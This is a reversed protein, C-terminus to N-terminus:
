NATSYIRQHTNQERRCSDRPVAKSISNSADCIWRLAAGIEQKKTDEHYTEMTPQIICGFITIQIVAMWIFVKRIFDIAIMAIIAFTNDRNKAIYGFIIDVILTLIKYARGVSFSLRYASFAQLLSDLLSASLRKENYIQEPM